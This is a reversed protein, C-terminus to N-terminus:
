NASANDTEAHQSKNNSSTGKFCCCGGTVVLLISPKLHLKSSIGGWKLELNVHERPSELELIPPPSIKTVSALPKERAMAKQPQM